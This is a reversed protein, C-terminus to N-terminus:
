FKAGLNFYPGIGSYDEDNSQRDAYDLFNFGVGLRIRKFFITGLEVAPAQKVLSCKQDNIVRYYGAVDFIDTFKHTLKATLMDIVSKTSLGEDKEEQFKLAYKGFIDTKPNIEYNAECSLINNYYDTSSASTSHDLESKYEYKSLLNLKDNFIPRYALGLIVRRTNRVTDESSRETLFESNFIFNYENNIRYQTYGLINAERTQLAKRREFKLGYSNETGSPLYDFAVSQANQKYYSTDSNKAHTNEFNVKTFLDQLVEYTTGFGVNEENKDSSVRNNMYSSLTLRESLNHERRLGFNTEATKGGFGYEIYSEGDVMAKSFGLGSINQLKKHLEKTFRNKVYVSTDKTLRYDLRGTTNSIKNDLPTATNSQKENKYEQELTAVVKDSLKRGGKLNIANIDKNPSIGLKDKFEQFAYGAGLFYDEKKHYLDLSSQRDFTRSITSLSRWHDFVLNTADTLQYDATAGYKERGKETVNVPNRFRNGIDSYYGQLKLRGLIKSGEMKWANDNKLYTNNTDLYHNSHGWEAALRTSPDPQLVTDFGYLRPNNSIHNEAIFQGGLSIKDGFLKTELRSGTLHYKTEGSLPVYEYDVMIYNPDDNGDLTSIPAKFFIRGSDYNIEYDVERTLTKTNLVVDSRDKDRTEIRISESYELLPTNGLWFPGSIGKASFTESVYEQESLAYFFDVSPKFPMKDKEKHSQSYSALGNGEPKAWDKLEIHTKAGALTRNYRSFETKTFEQTNYNGWLGYSDDKDIRVFFKGKSDAENFYSSQDGYVPYYKEPNVYEFLHRTKEKDTDVAGTLLYEGKILGKLYLKIKGDKYIGEKYPANVSSELNSINGKADLYGITADALGVLMFQNPAKDKEEEKKAEGESLLRVPFNVKATESGYIKFFKSEKPIDSRYQGRTKDEKVQPNPYKNLLEARPTMRRSAIQTEKQAKAGKTEETVEEYIGEGKEREILIVTLDRKHLIDAVESESTAELMGMVTQWNKDKATYYYTNVQKTEETQPPTPVKKEIKPTPPTPPKEQGAQTETPTEVQPQNQGLAEKRWDDLQRRNIIAERELPKQAAPQNIKENQPVPVDKKEKAKEEQPPKIKFFPGGPLVRQDIRIVHNGKEINPVSYRGFKDTVIITGDELILSVNPIGPEYEDQIGNRNKDEFVKGILLGSDSFLGEKVEVTSVSPGASVTNGGVTATAIASNENKGIKAESTVRARYTIKKTAQTTLTGLNWSLTRTGTPDVAGVGDILTSGSAYKFGAPLTDTIIVNYANFTNSLDKINITYTIIDGATAVKKNAQKAISLYTSSALNNPNMPINWEVIETTVTFTAGTYNAYGDSTAGLYYTGPAVNFSYSGDGGSSQPNPEPCGTYINGSATYLTVTAGSIPSGTVADYVIGYPDILLTGASAPTGATISIAQTKDKFFPSKSIVLNYNATAVNAYVTFNGDADSTAQAIFNGATDYLKVTANAIVSSSKADKLTGTVAPPLTNIGLYPPNTGSESSYFLHFTQYPAGDNALVLSLIKDSTAQAQLAFDTVDFSVWGCNNPHYWGGEPGIQVTSGEIDNAFNPGSAETDWKLTTESWGNNTEYYVKITGEDPDNYKRYYNGSGGPYEYEYTPNLKYAPPPDPDPNGPGTSSYGWEDATRYLWLKAESIHNNVPSLDFKIYTHTFYEGNIGPIFDDTMTGDALRERAAKTDIVPGAWLRSAHTVGMIDDTFYSDTFTDETPSLQFDYSFAPASILFVLIVTLILRKMSEGKKGEIL